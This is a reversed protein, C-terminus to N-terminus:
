GKLKFEIPIFINLFDESLESPIPELSLSKLTKLAGKELLKKPTNLTEINTITGNRLVRFEIKVVGQIRLRKAMKPYLLNQQIQRRIKSTYKDIITTTNIIAMPAVVQEIIPQPIVEVTPEPLIIPKVVKQKKTKKIIKKPKSKTIPKSKIAPKQKKVSIKSLTIHHVKAKPKAITNKKSFQSQLALLHVIGVVIFIGFFGFNNM